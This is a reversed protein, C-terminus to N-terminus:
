GEGDAPLHGFHADFEDATLRRSGREAYLRDATKTLTPELAVGGAEDPVVEYRRDGIQVVDGVQVDLEKVADAM